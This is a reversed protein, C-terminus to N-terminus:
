VAVLRMGETAAFKVSLIAQEEWKGRRRGVWCEAGEAQGRGTEM